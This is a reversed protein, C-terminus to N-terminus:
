IHFSLYIDRPAPVSVHDERWAYAYNRFDSQMERHLKHYLAPLHLLTYPPQVCTFMIKCDSIHSPSVWELLLSWTCYLLYLLM